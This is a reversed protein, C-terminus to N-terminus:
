SASRIPRRQATRAPADGDCIRADPRVRIRAPCRYKAAQRKLEGLGLGLAIALVVPPLGWGGRTWWDGTRAHGVNGVVSLATFAFVLVWAVARVRRPTEGDIAAVFLIVEGVVILLDILLPFFVAFYVPWGHNLAWDLLGHYSLAFGVATATPILVGILWLGAARPARLIVPLHDTRNM